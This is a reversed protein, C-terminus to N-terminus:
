RSSSIRRTSELVPQQEIPHATWVAPLHPPAQTSSDIQVQGKGSAKALYLLADARELVSTPTDDPRITTCGASFSITSEMTLAELEVQAQLREAVYRAEDLSRGPLHFCLEDGGLRFAADSARLNFRLLEGVRRLLEDGAAHGLQDNLQKFGDLDLLVLSSPTGRRRAECIAGELHGQLARRNLLGTLVDTMAQDQLQTNLAALAASQRRIRQGDLWHHRQAREHTWAIALGLANAAALLTWSAHLHWGPELVRALLVAAVASGVLGGTSIAIWRVGTGAYGGVVIIVLAMHYILVQDPRSWVLMLAEAALVLAFTVSAITDVNSRGWGRRVVMAEAVLLPVILFYRLAAKVDFRGVEVLDVLGFLAVAVAGVIAVLRATRAAAVVHQRLFETEADFDPFKLSISHFM